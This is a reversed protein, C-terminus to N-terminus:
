YEVIGTGRRPWNHAVPTPKKLSTSTIKRSHVLAVGYL